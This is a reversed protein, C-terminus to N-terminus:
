PAKFRVMTVRGKMLIFTVSSSSDPQFVTAPSAYTTKDTGRLGTYTWAGGEGYPKASDPKGFNLLINDAHVFKFKGIDQVQLGQEWGLAWITSRNAAIVARTAEAEKAAALAADAALARDSAIDRDIRERVEAAKAAEAAEAAKAAAADEAAAARRIQGRAENEKDTFEQQRDAARDALYPCGWRM